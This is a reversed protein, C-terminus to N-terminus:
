KSGGCSLLFRCKKSSICLFPLIQCFILSETEPFIFLWPDPASESHRSLFFNGLVPVPLRKYFDCHIFQSGTNRFSRYFYGQICVENKMQFHFFIASGQYALMRKYHKYNIYRNMVAVYLSRRLKYLTWYLYRYLYLDYWLVFYGTLVTYLPLILGCIELLGSTPYRLHLQLDPIPEKSTPFFVIM